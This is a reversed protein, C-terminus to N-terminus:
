QLLKNAVFNLSSSLEPEPLPSAPQSLLVLAGCILLALSACAIGWATQHLEQLLTIRQARRASALVRGPFGSLVEEPASVAASRSWNLLRKLSPDLQNM